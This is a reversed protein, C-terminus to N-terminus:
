NARMEHVAAQSIPDCLGNVDRLTDELHLVDDSHNSEFLYTPLNGLKSCYPSFGTQGRLHMYM